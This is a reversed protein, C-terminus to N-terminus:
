WLLARAYSDWTAKADPPMAATIFATTQQAIALSSKDENPIRRWILAVTRIVSMQLDEPVTVLDPQPPSLSLAQGPTLYGAMYSIAIALVGPTWYAGRLALNFPPNIIYGTTNVSTSAQVTINGNQVSSVSIIPGQNLVLNSGGVGTYSETRDLLRFDRSCYTACARSVASILMQLVDDSSDTVTPAGGLYLKVADVTTLDYTSVPISM